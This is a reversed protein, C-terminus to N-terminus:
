RCKSPTSRLAQLLPKISAAILSAAEANASIEAAIHLLAKPRMQRAQGSLALVAGKEMLSMVVAFLTRTLEQLDKDM